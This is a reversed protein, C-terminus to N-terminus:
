AWDRRSPDAWRDGTSGDDLFIRDSDPLAKVVRLKTAGGAAIRIRVARGAPIVGLAPLRRGWEVELPLSYPVTRREARMSRAPKDGFWRHNFYLARVFGRGWRTHANAQRGSVTVARDRGMLPELGASMGWRLHADSPDALRSMVWTGARQEYAMVLLRRAGRDLLQSVPDRAHAMLPNHQVM